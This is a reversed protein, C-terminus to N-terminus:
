CKPSVWGALLRRPTPSTPPRSGLGRRAILGIAFGQARFRARSVKRAFGQAVALGMGAGAGIAVRASMRAARARRRSRDPGAPRAGAVVVPWGPHQAASAAAVRARAADDFPGAALAERVLGRSGTLYDIQEAVLLGLAAPTGHGPLAV